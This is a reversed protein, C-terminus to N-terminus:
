FLRDLIYKISLILTSILLALRLYNWPLSNLFSADMLKGTFVATGIHTDPLIYDVFDYNSVTFFDLVGYDINNFADLIATTARSSFDSYDSEVRAQIDSVSLSKSFNSDYTDSYNMDTLNINAVDALVESSKDSTDSGILTNLKTEIGTTDTKSSSIASLLKNNNLNDNATRLAFKQNNDRRWFADDKQYNSSFNKFDSTLSGLLANSKDTSNNPLSNNFDPNLSPLSVNSDLTGDPNTLNTDPSSLGTDNNDLSTKLYCYLTNDSSCDPYAKKTLSNLYNVGDVYSQCTTPNTVTGKFVYGAPTSNGWSIPNFCPNSKYQNVDCIQYLCGRTDNLDTYNFENAPFILAYNACQTSNYVGVYRHWGTISIQPLPVNQTCDPVCQEYVRKYGSSCDCQNTTTNLTENALCTPANPNLHISGDSYTYFTSNPPVSGNFYSGVNECNQYGPNGIHAIFKYLINTGPTYYWHVSDDYSFNRSTRWNNECQSYSYAGGVSGSLSSSTSGGYGSYYLDTPYSSDYDIEASFAFSYLSFLIILIKKMKEV